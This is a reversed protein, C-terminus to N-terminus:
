LRRHGGAGRRGGATGAAASDVILTHPIGLRRLEYVTLRAGQLLPRSETALVEVLEGRAALEAVVSLATGRGPAALAGTNCHTLIRATGALLDAGHQAMADSAAKEQPM